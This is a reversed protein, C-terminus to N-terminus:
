SKELAVLITHEKVMVLLLAENLKRRHKCFQLTCVIGVGFMSVENM